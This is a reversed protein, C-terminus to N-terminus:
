NETWRHLFADRFPRFVHSGFVATGFASQKQGNLLVALEEDAVLGELEDYGAAGHEGGTAAAL